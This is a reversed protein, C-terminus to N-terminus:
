DNTSQGPTGAAIHKAAQLATVTGQADRIYAATLMRIFISIKTGRQGAEEDTILADALLELAQRNWEFDQPPFYIMMGRPM